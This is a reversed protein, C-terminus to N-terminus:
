MDQDENGPYKSLEGLITEILPTIEDRALGSLIAAHLARFLEEVASEPVGRDRCLFELKLAIEIQRDRDDNAQNRKTGKAM